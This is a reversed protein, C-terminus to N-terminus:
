PVFMTPCYFTGRTLRAKLLAGPFSTGIVCSSPLMLALLISHFLDSVEDSLQTWVTSGLLRNIDNSNPGPSLDSLPLSRRHVFDNGDQRPSDATEVSPSSTSTRLSPQQNASSCGLSQVLDELRRLRARLENNADKRGGRRGRPLRQRVVPVCQKDAKVCASCPQRKDCRIKRKTCLECSLLAIGPADTNQDSAVEMQSCTFQAIARLDPIVAPVESVRSRQWENTRPLNRSSIPAQFSESRPHSSAM